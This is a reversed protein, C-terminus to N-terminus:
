DVAGRAGWRALVREVLAEVRLNAHLRMSQRRLERDGSTPARRREPRRGPPRGRGRDSRELRVLLFPVGSRRALRATWRRPYLGRSPLVLVVTQGCRLHSQAARLGRQLRSVQSPLDSSRADAVGTLCVANPLAAALSRALVCVKRKRRGTVAILGSQNPAPRGPAPDLRDPEERPEARRRGPISSGPEPRFCLTAAQRVEPLASRGPSKSSILLKANV